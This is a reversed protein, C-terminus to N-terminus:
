VRGEEGKSSDAVECDIIRRNKITIGDGSAQDIAAGATSASLAGDELNLQYWKQSM